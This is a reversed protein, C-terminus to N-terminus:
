RRVVKSLMLVDSRCSGSYKEFALGDELTLIFLNEQNTNRLDLNRRSRKDKM